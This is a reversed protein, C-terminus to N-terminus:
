DTNSHVSQDNGSNDNSEGRRKRWNEKMKRSMEAKREETHPPMTRKNQWTAEIDRGDFFHFVLRGKDVISIYQIQQRFADESFEALGMAKAALEHLTPEPLSLSDCRAASACRWVSMYTGDVHRSRQRRYNEGCKECRIRSTFCSSNATLQREQVLRGKAARREDTWCDKKATSVWSTRIVQGDTMHFELVFHEPVIIKEMQASFIEEDFTDLGLVEACKAKLTEEPIDKAPCKGGKKKQTGCGYTTYKDCQEVPIGKLRRRRTNRMFSQGCYGCKIKGTFCNTNIRWNAFVGLERRRAIENQVAQYTEMPIIAEHTNEVFFQPLEGRNIRSKKSIPDVTYEKQFLLNGTYTINRLIQRISTNGFHQGKYSKVGMEALQKETTEASLGKLFNDYILRVIAAEEEHIVLHDGEWRYGYIQFRGNPIGQKFRQVTGWKVNDSISRSEEQAFSALLTLMLEGDETLSDIHEKEFQVSIGLDKLHRVTELLDVTNRAFRSISKTLIIDIKGAECDALMRNFEERSTTKTGTIGNDAYVGAYEWEPHKQILSSYYSVQASLSHQLRESEMSVRAYAAVRKRSPMQPVKPEIKNVIRM